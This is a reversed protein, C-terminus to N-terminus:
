KQNASVTAITQAESCYVCQNIDAYNLKFIPMELFFFCRLATSDEAEQM